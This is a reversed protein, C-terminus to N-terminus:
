LRVPAASLDARAIRKTKAPPIPLDVDVAKNARVTMRTVLWVMGQAAGPAGNESWGPEIRARTVAELLGEIAKAEDRTAKHGKKLRDLNVLRGQRTVVSALEFVADEAATENAAQFRATGRAHSAPDIAIANASMEPTAVLTMLAALSAAPSANQHGAPAFRMMGLMIVVCAVTAAAAGLGAYVVHMDEFLERVRSLMSAGDEASRRNVVGAVFTPVEQQSLLDRGKIGAKLAVSVFELDDLMDACVLCSGLHNQVAIQEAVPLEGDHFEQLRRQAAACTVPRM